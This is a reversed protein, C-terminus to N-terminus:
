GHPAEPLSRLFRSMAQVAVDRVETRLRMGAIIAFDKRLFSIFLWSTLRLQLWTLFSGQAVGFSGYARVGQGSPLLGLIAATRRKGIKSEVVFIPGSCTMTVEIGARGFFAMVRDALRGGSVRSRYRLRLKRGQDLTEITPPGELKRHHVADLHEMDFGSIMLTHWTTEVAVPGGSRWAYVDVEDPLPPDPPDSIEGLFIFILGVREAVPWTRVKGCVKSEGNGIRAQGAGDLRWHHMPCRLEEGIVQGHRLHTGMHPCHAALAQIKGVETRFLVIEAGALTLPLVRGRPLDRARAVVYWGVPWRPFPAEAEPTATM